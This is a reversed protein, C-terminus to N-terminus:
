RLLQKGGTCTLIKSSKMNESFIYSSRTLFTYPTQRKNSVKKNLTENKQNSETVTKEPNTVQSVGITRSTAM